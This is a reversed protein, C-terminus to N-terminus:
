AGGTPWGPEPHSLLDQGPDAGPARCSSSVAVGQRSIPVSGPEAPLDGGVRGRESPPGIAKPDSERRLASGPREHHDRRPESPEPRRTQTERRIFGKSPLWRYGEVIPAHFCFPNVAFIM